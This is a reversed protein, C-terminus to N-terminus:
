KDLKLFELCNIQTIDRPTLIFNIDNEHKGPM